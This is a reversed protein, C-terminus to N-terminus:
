ASPEAGYGFTVEVRRNRARGADTTNDAVPRDEGVSRVVARAQTNATLYECVRRARDEAVRRNTEADGVDDTGGTCTVTRVDSMRSRLANLYPLDAEPVDLGGAPYGIARPATVTLATLVTSGTAEVPATRDTVWMRVAVDARIGGPRGALRRGRPTLVVEAPRTGVTPNTTEGIGTGLVVLESGLVTSLTAECRRVPIPGATCGVIATTGAADTLTRAGTRVSPLPRADVMPAYTGSVSQGAADLLRYHVPRVSGWFMRDPEFTIRGTAPDLTYIGQDRSSVQTVPENKDDLLTVWGGPPISLTVSQPGAGSSTLRTPPTTVPLTRVVATGTPDTGSVVITHDGVPITAPLVAALTVLGTADATTRGLPTATATAPDLTALAATGAGFGASVLTLRQGPLALGIRGLTTRLDNPNAAELGEEIGQDVGQGVGQGVSSPAGRATDGADHPAGRTTSQTAGTGPGPEAAHAAVSIPLLTAGWVLPLAVLRTLARIPHHAEAVSM